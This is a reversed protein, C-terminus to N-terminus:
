TRDDSQRGRRTIEEDTAEWWGYMIGMLMGDVEDM